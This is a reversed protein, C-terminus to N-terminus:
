CLALAGQQIPFEKVKKDEKAKYTIYSLDPIELDMKILDKVNTYINESSDYKITRRSSIISYDALKYLTNVDDSSIFVIYNNKLYNIVILNTNCNKM